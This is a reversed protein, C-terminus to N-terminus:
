LKSINYLLTLDTDFNNIGEGDLGFQEKIEINIQNIEEVVSVNVVDSDETIAINVVTIEEIINIEM